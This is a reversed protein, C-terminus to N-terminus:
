KRKIVRGVAKEIDEAKMGYKVLLEEPKGSEGFTDRLGIREMPVPYNEVLVEAVASGLGNNIQHEEATVIAGTEKAAAIITKKDIPKLTHNNIVRVSIGKRALNEAAALAEYVMQGCAIVTADTGERFVLAKGIEFPTKESTIVPTKERLFRLYVPGKHNGAWLTAKKTEWFDCPAIVVFNPLVRMLALDECGQHTAGDPGVSIGAHAGAIKVNLNGYAVTVRVQDWSRGPSFVAYSSIFPIKGEHALGGAIGTMNQEAVGCDIFRRPFKEAFWQARTSEMLDGTLVIINPNKEGLEVLARGYGDRTPIMEPNKLSKVLFLKKNLM